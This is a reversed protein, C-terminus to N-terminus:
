VVLAVVFGFVNWPSRSTLMYLQVVCTGFLHSQKAMRQGCFCKTPRRETLLAAASAICDEDWACGSCGAPGCVRCACCRGRFMPPCRRNVHLPSPAQPHMVPQRTLMQVPGRGRSHIKDDVMHKLRQYYTPGLFIQPRRVRTRDPGGGHWWPPHAVVSRM